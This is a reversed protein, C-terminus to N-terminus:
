ETLSGLAGGGFRLQVAETKLQTFQQNLSGITKHLNDVVAMLEHLQTNQMKIQQQLAKFNKLAWENDIKEDNM